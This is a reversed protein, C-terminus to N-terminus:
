PTLDTWSPDFRIEEGNMWGVQPRNWESQGRHINLSLYATECDDGTIML